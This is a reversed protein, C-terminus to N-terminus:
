LERYEADEIDEKEIVVPNHAVEQANMAGSAISLRHQEALAMTTQRLDDIVSGEKHNIDLEIKTTEPPKLHTLISNAADSRVKESNAFAMLEAQVNLAKQYLEANLIHHPILSQEFVLNVLKNKNYMSVYSSMDKETVGTNVWHQYKDPFTKTYASINSDGMLKFSVYKVANVYDPIKFKGDKLVHCYGIVNDRLEAAINPDSITKNIKDILDQSISKKVQPPLAKKFQEVTLQTSDM